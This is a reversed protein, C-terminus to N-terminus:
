GPGQVRFNFRECSFEILPWPLAYSLFPNFQLFNHQLEPKGLYCPVLMTM